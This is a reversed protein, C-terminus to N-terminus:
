GVEYRIAVVAQHHHASISAEFPPRYNINSNKISRYNIRVDIIRSIMKSMESLPKGLM